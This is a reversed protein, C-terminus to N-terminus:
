RWATGSSDAPASGLKSFVKRLNTTPPGSPQPQQQTTCCQTPRACGQQGHRYGGDTPPCSRARAVAILFGMLEQACLRQIQVSDAVQSSGIRLHAFDAIRRLRSM